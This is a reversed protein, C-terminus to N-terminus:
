KIWKIFFNNPYKAKICNIVFAFIVGGILCIWFQYSVLFILCETTGARPMFFLSTLIILGITSRFWWKRYFWYPIISCLAGILISIVALGAYGFDLYSELLYSSGRGEGEVYRSGLVAYSVDYALNHGNYIKKLSNGSGLDDLHFLKEGVFNYCFVDVLPGITYVKNNSFILDDQLEFGQLVTDYTTGQNFAFDILINTPSFSMNKDARIYNYAGMFLVLVPIIVIISILGRKSIWSKENKAKYMSRFIFYLFAFICNLMFPNRVGIILIPISSVIYIILWFLSEKKSPWLALFACLFYPM